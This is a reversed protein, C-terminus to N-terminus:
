RMNLRRVGGILTKSTTRSWDTTTRLIETLPFIVTNEQCSPDVSLLTEWVVSRAAAAFYFQAVWVYPILDTMSLIATASLIILLGSRVLNGLMIAPIPLLKHIPALCSKCCMKFCIKLRVEHRFSSPPLNGRVLIDYNSVKSSKAMYICCHGGLM